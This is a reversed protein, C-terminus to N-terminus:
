KKLKALYKDPDKKLDDQCGDCCLFFTQGKVTVKFPKGMAGLPEGSVPCVKQKLALARDAASLEALGEPLKEQTVTAPSAPQEATKSDTAAAEPKPAPNPPAGCGSLVLAIGLVCGWVVM